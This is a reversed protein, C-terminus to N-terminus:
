ATATSGFFDKKSASEQLLQDAFWPYDKFWKLYNAETPKVPEGNLKVNTWTKVCKALLLAGTDEDEFDIKPNSEYMDKVVKKFFQSHNGYIEVTMDSDEGTVPNKVTFVRSESLKLNDFDM